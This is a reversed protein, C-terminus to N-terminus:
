LRAASATTIGLAAAGGELAGCEAPTPPRAVFGEPTVSERPHHAQNVSGEGEAIRLIVYPSPGAAALQARATDM